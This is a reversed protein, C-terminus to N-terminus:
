VPITRNDLDQARLAACTKIKPAPAFGSMRNIYSTTAARSRDAHERCLSGEGGDSYRGVKRCGWCRCM